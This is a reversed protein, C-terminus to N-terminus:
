SHTREYEGLLDILDDYDIPQVPATAEISRARMDPKLAYFKLNRTSAETNIEKEVTRLAFVADQALVIGDGPQAFRLGEEMETATSPSRLFIHLTSM